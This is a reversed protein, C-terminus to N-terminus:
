SPAASSAPASGMPPPGIGRTASEVGEDPPSLAAVAEPRALRSVVVEGAQGWLSRAQEAGGEAIVVKLLASADFYAIV